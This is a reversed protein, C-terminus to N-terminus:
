RTTRCCAEEEEAASAWPSLGGLTWGSSATTFCSSSPPSAVADDDRDASRVRGCIDGDAAAAKRRCTETSVDGSMRAFCVAAAMQVTKALPPHRCGGGGRSQATPSPPPSAVM